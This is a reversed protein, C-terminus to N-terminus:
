LGMGMSYTLWFIRTKTSQKQPVFRYSMYNPLEFFNLLKSFEEAPDNRIMGGDVILFNDGFTKKYAFVRIPDYPM